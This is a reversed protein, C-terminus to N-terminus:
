LALTAKWSTKEALWKTPPFLGELSGVVVAEVVDEEAEEMADEWGADGMLRSGMDESAGPLLSDEDALLVKDELMRDPAEKKSGPSRAMESFMGPM